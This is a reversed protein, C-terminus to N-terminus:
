KNYKSNIFRDIAASIGKGLKERAETEYEKGVTIIGSSGGRSAYKNLKPLAEPDGLLFAVFNNVVEPMVENSEEIKFSELFDKAKPM